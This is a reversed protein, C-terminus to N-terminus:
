VGLGLCLWVQETGNKNPYFFIAGWLSVVLDSNEKLLSDRDEKPLDIFAHFNDAFKTVREIIMRYGKIAASTSVPIGCM